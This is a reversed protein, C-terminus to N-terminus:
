VVEVDYTSMTPKPPLVQAAAISTFCKKRLTSRQWTQHLCPRGRCGLGLVPGGQVPQAAQLQEQWRARLLADGTLGHLGSMLGANEGKYTQQGSLTNFYVTRCLGHAHASETRAHLVVPM